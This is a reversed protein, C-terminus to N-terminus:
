YKGTFERSLMEEYKKATTIEGIVEKKLAELVQRRTAHPNTDFWLQFMKSTKYTDDEQEEKISNLSKVNLELQIGLQYWKSGIIVHECLEQLTPKEQLIEDSFTAM